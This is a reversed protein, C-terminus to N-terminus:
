RLFNGSEYRKISKKFLFMTICVWCVTSIVTISVIISTPNKIYEIPVTSTILAPVVTIFFIKLNNTFMSGPYLGPRLFIDFVQMVIAEGDQVYFSIIGTLLNVCFFVIVGCLVFFLFGALQGFSFGKIIPYYLIFFTGILLDGLATISFNMGSLRIILNRPSLLVSDFTGRLIYSPLECTGYFFSHTIGFTFMAIGMMAFVDLSDWRNIPGTTDLLFYWIFFFSSNNLIMGILSWYFSGTLAKANKFNLILNKYFFYLDKKM